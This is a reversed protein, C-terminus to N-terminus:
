GQSSMEIFASATEFEKDVTDLVAKLDEETLGTIAWLKENPDLLKGDGGSGFNKVRCVIDGMHILATEKGNDALTSLDAPPIHHYRISDRLRRPLNWRIGIRHGIRAHDTGLVDIEAERITCDKENVARLVKIFDDHMYKDMVVKGIDHLLGAIFVEEPEPYRIRKALARASVGVGISHKWFAARDFGFSEGKFIDFVSISLALSRLVNFGLIATAHTVTGIKQPFGYFASNVLRLIKSTFAQDFSVIKAVDRASTKDSTVVQVLQNVLHPLTPVSDVKQLMLDIEQPTYAM